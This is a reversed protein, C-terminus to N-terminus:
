TNRQPWKAHGLARSGENRKAVNLIVGFYPKAVDLIVGFYPKAVDLIVGFYPKAVDM